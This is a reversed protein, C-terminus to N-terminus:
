RQFRKAREGQYREITEPKFLLRGGDRYGLGEARWNHYLWSPSRRLKSAAEHLRLPGRPIAPAPKEARRAEAALLLGRQLITSEIAAIRPLVALLEPGCKVVGLVHLIKAPSEVVRRQQATLAYRLGIGEPQQRM